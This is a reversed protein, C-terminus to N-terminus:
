KRRFSAKIRAWSRNEVASDEQGSILRADVLHESYRWIHWGPFPPVLSHLSRYARPKTDFDPVSIQLGIIKGAALDSPVSDEPSNWILDDFPTVYFELLSTAPTGRTVEGGGDAYPSESVWSAASGDVGIFRDDPAEAIAQYRQAIRGMNLTKEEDSWTEDASGTFDGGSHDGDVIFTVHSDYQWLSTPNGGDYEHVFVDDTRGMAFYLRNTSNNWGLWIQYDMDAPDYPAGEGVDPSPVLDAATLVPGSIVARWDDLNRDRVDLQGLADDTIEPIFYIQDGIHASVSSAVILIFLLIYM